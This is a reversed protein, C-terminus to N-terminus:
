CRCLCKLRGCCTHTSRTAAGSSEIGAASMRDCASRRNHLRGNARVWILALLSVNTELADKCASLVADGQGFVVVFGVRPAPAVGSLAPARDVRRCTWRLADAHQVQLKADAIASQNQAPGLGDNPREDM